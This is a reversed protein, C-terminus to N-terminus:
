FPFEDERCPRLVAPSFCELNLEDNRSFWAVEIDGCCGQSLVTMSTGGSKLQVVDGEKFPNAAAADACTAFGDSKVPPELDKPLSRIRITPKKHPISM